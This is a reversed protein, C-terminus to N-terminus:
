ILDVFITRNAISVILDAIQKINILFEYLINVLHDIFPITRECTFSIEEKRFDFLNLGIGLTFDGHINIKHDM